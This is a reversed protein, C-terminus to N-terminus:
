FAFGIGINAMLGSFLLNYPTVESDFEFKITERSGDNYVKTAEVNEPLSSFSYGVEPRFYFLGGLKAGLKINISGHSSDIIDRSDEYHVTGKININGYSLGGYLGRGPKFLYYNLGGEIYTYDLENNESANEEEILWDSKITSYDISVALKENLLPTVYELNGGIINPFGVKAGIRFPRLKREKSSDENISLNRRTSIEM